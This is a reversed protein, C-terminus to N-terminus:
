LRYDFMWTGRTADYLLDYDYEQNAVIRGDNMQFTVNVRVWAHNGENQLVQVSNVDVRAVSNWWKAYDEYSGSSSHTKFSETLYNNWLDEYNREQWVAGFYWRMFAAPDQLSTATGPPPQSPPPNIGRTARTPQVRPLSGGVTPLPTITNALSLTPIPTNIATPVTPTLALPTPSPPLLLPPPFTAIQPTGSGTQPILPCDELTIPWQLCNSNGVCVNLTFSTQKAGRCLVIRQGNVVQATLCNIGIVPDSVLFTAVEPMILVAHPEDNVCFQCQLSVTESGTVPIIGTPAISSLTGTAPATATVQGDPFITGVPAPTEGSPLNCAATLLLLILAGIFSRRSINKIVYSEKIWDIEFTPLSTRM